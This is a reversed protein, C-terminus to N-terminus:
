IRSHPTFSHNICHVVQSLSCFLSLSFHSPPYTQPPSVSPQYNGVQIAVPLYSRSTQNCFAPTSGVRVVESALSPSIVDPFALHNRHLTVQRLPCGPHFFFCAGSLHTLPYINALSISIICSQSLGVPIMVFRVRRPSTSGVM